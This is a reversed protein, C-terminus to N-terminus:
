QQWVYGSECVNYLLLAGVGIQTSTDSFYIKQRGYRQSSVFKRLNIISFARNKQFIHLFFKYTLFFHRGKCDWDSSLTTRFLYHHWLETPRAFSQFDKHGQNSERHCWLLVETSAIRNLNKRTRGAHRHHPCTVTYERYSACCAKALVVDSLFPRRINREATRAAVDRFYSRFANADGM